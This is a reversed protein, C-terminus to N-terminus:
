LYVMYIGDISNTEVIHYVMCSGDTQAVMVVFQQILSSGSVQKYGM